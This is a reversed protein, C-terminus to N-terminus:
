FSKCGLILTYFSFFIGEMFSHNEIYVPNLLTTRKVNFTRFIAAKSAGCNLAERIAQLKEDSIAKSRGGRKGRNKAAELGAM